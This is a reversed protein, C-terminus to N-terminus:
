NLLKQAIKQLRRSQNADEMGGAVLSDISHESLLHADSQDFGAIVCYFSQAQALRQTKITLNKENRYAAMMKRFLEAIFENLEINENTISIIYEFSSRLATDSAPAYAAPILKGNLTLRM